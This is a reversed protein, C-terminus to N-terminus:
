SKIKAQNQALPRPLSYDVRSHFQHRGSGVDCYYYIGSSPDYYLQNESDFYFGTSHDFYLATNEDYTFGTQSVAAEAAAKFSDVISSGVLATVEAVLASTSEQSDFTFHDEQGHKVCDTGDNVARSDSDIQAEDKMSAQAYQSQQVILERKVPFVIM